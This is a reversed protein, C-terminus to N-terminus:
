EATVEVPGNFSVEPQTATEGEGQSGNQIQQMAENISSILSNCKDYAFVLAAANQRGKVEVSDVAERIKVIENGLDMLTLM